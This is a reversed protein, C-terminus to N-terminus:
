CLHINFLISCCLLLKPFKTSVQGYQSPFYFRRLKPLAPYSINHIAKNELTGIKMPKAFFWVNMPNWFKHDYCKEEYNMIVFILTVFSWYPFLSTFLISVLGNTHKKMSSPLCTLWPSLIFEISKSPWLDFNLDPHADSVFTPNWFNIKNYDVNLFYFFLFKM